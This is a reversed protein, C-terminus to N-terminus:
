KKKSAQRAIIQDKIGKYTADPIIKRAARWALKASATL